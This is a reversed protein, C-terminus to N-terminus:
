RKDVVLSPPSILQPDRPEAVQHGSYIMVLWNPTELMRFRFCL